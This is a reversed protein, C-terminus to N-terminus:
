QMSVERVVILLDIRKNKSLIKNQACLTHVKADWGAKM